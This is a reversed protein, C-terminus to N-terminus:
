DIREVWVNEGISEVCRRAKSETSDADLPLKNWLKQIYVAHTIYLSRPLEPPKTIAYLANEYEFTIQGKVMSIFVCYVLSEDGEFLDYLTIKEIKQTLEIQKAIVPNHIFEVKDEWSEFKADDILKLLEMSAMDEVIFKSGHYRYSYDTSNLLMSIQARTTNVSFLTAM